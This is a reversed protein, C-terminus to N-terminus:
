NYEMLDIVKTEVRQVCRLEREIEGPRLTSNFREITKKAVDLAEADTQPEPVEGDRTRYGTIKENWQALVCSITM